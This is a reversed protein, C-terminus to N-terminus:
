KLQQVITKNLETPEFVLYSVFLIDFQFYGTHAHYLTAM